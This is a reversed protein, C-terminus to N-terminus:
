PWVAEILLISAAILCICGVLFGVAIATFDSM